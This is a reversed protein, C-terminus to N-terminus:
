NSCRSLTPRIQAPKSNPCVTPPNSAFSILPPNRHPARSVSPTPQCRESFRPPPVNFPALKWGLVKQPHGRARASRQWPVNEVRDVIGSKACVSLSLSLPPLLSVSPTYTDREREKRGKRERLLRKCLRLAGVFFRVSANCWWIAAVSVEQRFNFYARSGSSTTSTAHVNIQAHNVRDEEFM